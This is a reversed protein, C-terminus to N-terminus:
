NTNAHPEGKPHNRERYAAWAAEVRDCPNETALHNTTQRPGHNPANPLLCRPLPRFWEGGPVKRMHRDVVIGFVVWEVHNHGHEHYSLVYGRITKSLELPQAEYTGHNGNGPDIM